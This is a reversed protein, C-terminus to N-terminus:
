FARWIPVIKDAYRKLARAVNRAKKLTKTDIGVKEGIEVAEDIQSAITDAEKLRYEIWEKDVTPIRTDTLTKIRSALFYGSDENGLSEYLKRVSDIGGDLGQLIEGASIVADEVGKDSVIKKGKEKEMFDEPRLGLEERKEPDISRYVNLAVPDIEKEWGYFKDLLGRRKLENYFAPDIEKLEDSTLYSYRENFISKIQRDSMDKYGM